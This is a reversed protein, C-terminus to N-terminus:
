RLVPSALFTTFMCKKCKLGVIVGVGVGEEGDGLGKWLFSTRAVARSPVNALLSLDRVSKNPTSVAVRYGIIWVFYMFQVGSCKEM